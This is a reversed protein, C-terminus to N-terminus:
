SALKTLSTRLRWWSLGLVLVNVLIATILTGIWIGSEVALGQNSLSNRILGQLPILLVIGFVSIGIILPAYSRALVQTLKPVEHGLQILLAIEDKSRSVVLEFAMLFILTALVIFLIGLLGIASLAARLAGVATGRLQDKNTELGEEEFTKKIQPDGPDDVQLMVRSFETNNGSGFRQNGWDLFTQPVLVSLVRDSFGVVRAPMYQRYGNGILLIEIRYNTVIERTFQPYNMSPALVANYLNLFESSIIIPLETDGPKWDWQDPITDLFEDKISELPIYVQMDRFQEMSLAATFSNARFVDVDQVFPFERIEEVEELDFNASAAGTLQAPGIEKQIVIYRSM